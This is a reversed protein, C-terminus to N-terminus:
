KGAVSIGIIENNNSRMTQMSLVKNVFLKIEGPIMTASRRLTLIVDRSKANGTKRRNKILYKSSHFFIM